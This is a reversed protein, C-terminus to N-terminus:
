SERTKAAGVFANFSELLDAATQPKGAVAQAFKSALLRTVAEVFLSDWVDPPPNNNYVALANQTNTLVVRKVTSGVVSNGVAWNIPLPNFVSPVAPMLQWIEVGNTPYLYEYTWGAPAVNGSLTLAVTRRQMDWEFLRAVAQVTPEYMIQAAKGATSDDFTPAVGAVPEMNDGVLWLANNVISTATVAM